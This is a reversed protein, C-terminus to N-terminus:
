ATIEINKWQLMNEWLADYDGSLLEEIQKLESESFNYEENVKEKTKTTVDVILRKRLLKKKTVNGDKDTSTVTKTYKETKYDIDVTDWFVKELRKYESENMNLLSSTVERNSSTVAYYTLIEKWKIDYTDLRFSDNDVEANIQNIKEDIETTLSTKASELTKNIVSREGVFFFRFSSALLFLIFCTCFNNSSIVVSIVVSVTGGDAILVGLSKLLLIAKKGKWLFCFFLTVFWERFRLWSNSGM